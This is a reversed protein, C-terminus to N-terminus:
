SRASSRRRAGSPIPARTSSANRSGPSRSSRTPRRTSRQWSRPRPAGEARLARVVLGGRLGPLGARGRDARGAALALSAPQEGRHGRADRRPHARDGLPHDRVHVARPGHAPGEAGRRGQVPHADGRLGRALRAHLELPARLHRRGDLRLEDTGQAGQRYAILQEMTKVGLSAPVVLVNPVNCIYAIPVLDAQPDYALKSYLTPNVAIPGVSDVLLTYGDPAARVVLETGINGGGGPKNEIVFPQGIRDALRQGVLRAVVDTSGGATFAVVIKVPRAPYKQAAASQALALAALGLAALAFLRTM